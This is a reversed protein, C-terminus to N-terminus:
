EVPGLKSGRTVEGCLYWPLILHGLCSVEMDPSVARASATMVRSHYELKAGYSWWLINLDTHMLIQRDVRLEERIPVM